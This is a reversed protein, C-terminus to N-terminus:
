YLPLGAFASKELDKFSFRAKTVMSITCRHTIECSPSLVHGFPDCLAGSTKLKQLSPDQGTSFLQCKLMVPFAGLVYGVAVHRVKVKMFNSNPEPVVRAARGLQIRTKHSHETAVNKQQIRKQRDGNLSEQFAINQELMLAQREETLGLLTTVKEQANDIDIMIPLTNEDEGDCSYNFVKSGM